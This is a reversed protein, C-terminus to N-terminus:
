FCTIILLCEAYIVNAYCEICLTGNQETDNHQVDNHQIDNNEIGHYVTKYRTM